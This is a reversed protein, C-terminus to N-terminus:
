WNLEELARKRLRAQDPLRTIGRLVGEASESAPRVVLGTPTIECERVSADFASDRMKIISIIRYYDGAFEVYRLLLFNQALLAVPTDTLDLEPGALQSTELTLLATVNRTRLFGTLAAMYSSRREMTMGNALDGYSDLLLRQPRFREVEVRLVNTAEDVLLEV